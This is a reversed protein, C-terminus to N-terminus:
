EISSFFAPSLIVQKGDMKLLGRRQFENLVRSVTERSTSVMSAIDQHTPRKEILTGEDVKKGEKEALDSLTRAVRGYVDLLALNGIIEDAKRLRSSLVALINLAINPHEMLHKKFVDRKLMLLSSDETTEVNASRPRDDVLAMEGFFDGPIFYTLTIEKGSDGYLVVKVRGSGVIYMSDGIEDQGFILTNKPFDKSIMLKSLKELAKDGVGSFISVGGLLKIRDSDSM